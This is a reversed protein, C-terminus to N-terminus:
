SRSVAEAFAAEYDDKDPEGRPVVPASRTRVVEAAEAAQQRARDPKHSTPAASRIGKSEKYRTVLDIVDEASGGYLVAEYGPRLYSPQQDVWDKLGAKVTDFDGHASRIAAFHRERASSAVTEAVPAYEQRIKEEAKKVMLEVAKMLHPFDQMAEELAASDEDPTEPKGDAQAAPPPPEHRDQLQRHVERAVEAKFMGQLTKYRQKWLAPDDEDEPAPAPPVDGAPEDGAPEDTKAAEDEESEPKGEDAPPAGEPEDGEPDDAPESAPTDAQTAEGFAASFEDDAHEHNEQEQQEDQM